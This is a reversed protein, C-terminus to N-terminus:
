RYRVQIWTFYASFIKLLTDGVKRWLLNQGEDEHRLLMDLNEIKSIEGGKRVYTDEKWLVTRILVSHLRSFFKTKPTAAQVVFNAFFKTM